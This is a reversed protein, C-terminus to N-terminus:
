YRPLRNKSLLHSNTIRFPSQCSNTGFDPSWSTMDNWRDVKDPALTDLCTVKVRLEEEEVLTLHYSQISHKDVHYRNGTM